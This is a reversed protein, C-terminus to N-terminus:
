TPSHVTSATRGIPKAEEEAIMSSISALDRVGGPIASGTSVGETNALALQSGVSSANINKSFKDSQLYGLAAESADIALGASALDRLVSRVLETMSVHSKANKMGAVSMNSNANAKVVNIWKNATATLLSGATTKKQSTASASGKKQDVTSSHSGQSLSLSVTSHQYIYHMIIATLLRM